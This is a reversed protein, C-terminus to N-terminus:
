RVAGTDGRDLAKSGYGYGEACGGADSITKVMASATEDIASIFNDVSGFDNLDYTSYLKRQMDPNDLSDALRVDPYKECVTEYLPTGPLVLVRNVKIKKLGMSALTEVFALQNKLTERNEGPLGIIFSADIDIGADLVRKTADLYQAVTEHKNMATLLTDDGAEYGIYVMRFNMEKMM